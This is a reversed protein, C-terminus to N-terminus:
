KRQNIFNLYYDIEKFVGQLGTEEKQELVLDFRTFCPIRLGISFDAGVGATIFELPSDNKRNLVIFVGYHPELFKKVEESKPKGFWNLESKTFHDFPPLDTIEKRKKPIYAMLNVKKGAKEMKRAFDLILKDDEGGEFAIAVSEVLDFGPYDNPRFGTKRSRLLMYERFKSNVTM